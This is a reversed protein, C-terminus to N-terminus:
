PKANGTATQDAKSLEPNAENARRPRTPPSESNRSVQTVAAIEDPRAAPNDPSNVTEGPRAATGKTANARERPNHFQTDSEDGPKRQSPM